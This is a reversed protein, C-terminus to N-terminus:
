FAILGKAKVTFKKMAFLCLANATVAPSPAIQRTADLLFEFGPRLLGKCEVKNEGAIVEHSLQWQSLNLATFSSADPNEQMNPYWSITPEGPMIQTRKTGRVIGHGYVKLDRPGGISQEVQEVTSIKIQQWQGQPVPGLVLGGNAYKPTDKKFDTIRTFRWSRAATEPSLDESRGFGGPGGKGLFTGVDVTKSEASLNEFFIQEVNTKQAL